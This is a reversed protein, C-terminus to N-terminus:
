GLLGAERALRRRFSLGSEQYVDDVFWDLYAFSEWGTTPLDLVRAMEALEALLARVDDGVDGLKADIAALRRKVIPLMAAKATARAAAEVPGVGRETVLREIRAKQVATVLDPELLRQREAELVDHERRSTAAEDLYTGQAARCAQLARAATEFTVEASGHRERVTRVDVRDAVALHGLDLLDRKSTLLGM